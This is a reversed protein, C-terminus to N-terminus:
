PFIECALSILHSTGISSLAVKMSAVSIKKEKGKVHKMFEENWEDIQAVSPKPYQFKM